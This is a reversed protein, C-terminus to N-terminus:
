QEELSQEEEEDQSEEFPRAPDLYLSYIYPLDDIDIIWEALGCDQGATIIQNKNQNIKSLPSPRVVTHIYHDNSGPIYDAEHILLVDFDNILKDFIRRNNTIM